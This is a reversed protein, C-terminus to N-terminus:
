PAVTEEITQRIELVSDVGSIGFLRRVQQSPTVIRLM